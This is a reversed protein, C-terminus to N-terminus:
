GIKAMGKKISNANTLFGQSDPLQIGRMVKINLKFSLFIFKMDQVDYYILFRDYLVQIPPYGWIQSKRYFLPPLLSIKELADSSYHIM